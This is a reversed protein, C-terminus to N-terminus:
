PTLESLVAEAARRGSYLAGDISATDRHDGCVYLGKRLRVPREIESIHPISQDPLGHALKYTKLYRWKYAEDPFWEKLQVRVIAELEMEDEEPYSLLTVSVLTHGAPAYSPCVNSIFCMNNIPGDKKGEGNLILLPEDLPPKGAAYYMCTVVRSPSITIDDGLLKAAEPGDTAVVIAQAGLTEGHPLNMIGDQVSLVKTNMRLSNPPLRKALQNPIAGMGDQPIATDNQAFLKFVSEFIRSSTVLSEDFSIGGFFPRFFQNIIADTFGESRLLEITSTEPGRMIDGFPTSVLRKRLKAIAFKDEWTGIPALMTMFIDLPNRFPDGFKHFSDGVRILCGPYFSHLKLAGYDLVRKAEPYGTLLVQFGRDLRFDEFVDTRVRGGVGNSAELILFTIGKEMLKLACALGALGAGVILVDPNRKM